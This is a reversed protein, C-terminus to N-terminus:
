LEIKKKYLYNTGNASWYVKMNWMGKILKEDKIELINSDSLEIKHTFDLIKKSPRIMKVEGSISEPKFEVPFIITVSKLNVQIRVNEKLAKANEVLDIEDQYKLEEEYYKPSVLEHDYIPDSAIQYVVYLTASIFILLFLSIGHGWNFKM